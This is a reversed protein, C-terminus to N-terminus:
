DYRVVRVTVHTPELARSVVQALDDRAADLDVADKLRAAFAAAMADVDYRSRNFRRDALPVMAAVAALTLFGLLLMTRRHGGSRGADAEVSAETAPQYSVPSDASEM